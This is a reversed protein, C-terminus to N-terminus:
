VPHRERCSLYRCNSELMSGNAKEASDEEQVADQADLEEVKSVGDRCVVRRLMQRTYMPM